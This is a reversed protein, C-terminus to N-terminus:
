KLGPLLILNKMRHSCQQNRCWNPPPEGGASIWEGEISGDRM